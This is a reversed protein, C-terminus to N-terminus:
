KCVWAGSVCTANVCGAGPLGWCTDRPCQSSPTLGPDCRWGTPGCVAPQLVDSGCFDSCFFPQVQGTCRCFDLAGCTWVKDKTCTAEGARTNTPSCCDPGKPGPCELGGPGGDARAADGGDFGDQVASLCGACLLTLLLSGKVRLVALV